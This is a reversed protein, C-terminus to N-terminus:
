ASANRNLREQHLVAKVLTFMAMAYFFVATPRLIKPSLELLYFKEIYVILQLALFMLACILLYINYNDEKLVYDAIIIGFFFAILINNASFVVLSVNSLDATISILYFFILLVPLSGILIPLFDNIRLLKLLFIILLVRHLAFIAVGWLLSTSSAPIFLISSLLGLVLSTIFLYDRSISKNFYIALVVITILPKVSYVITNNVVFEGYLDLAVIPLYILSLLIHLTVKQSKEM